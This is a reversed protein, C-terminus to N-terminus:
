ENTQVETMFKYEEGYVTNYWEKELFELKVEKIFKADSILRHCTVLLGGIDFYKLGKKALDANGSVCAVIETVAVAIVNSASAILNSYSLIKRTRVEYLTRSGDKTEDYFLAHIMSVLFNIFVSMAAQKGVDIVNAADLGYEALKAAAEPSLMTSIMPLPLSKTSGVDSKLHIAEKALSAGVKEKGALGQHLAKDFTYSLVKGTDAHNTIKDRTSNNATFGTKIHYSQFDWTTMTSTAINATGFIWGLIPDHGLTKARHTNGSFGLDFDKSGYIADFPVPNTIIEDLSPSYYRNQRDSHEETHGETRKAAESDTFRERFPTLFYQRVCQLATAFFLFTIDAGNLKTAQKFQKDIDNLIVAANDYVKEVRKYEDAIEQFHVTEQKADSVISHASKKMKDFKSM